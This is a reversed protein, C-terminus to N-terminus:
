RVMGRELLHTHIRNMISQGSAFDAMATLEIKTDGIGYHGVSRVDKVFRADEGLYEILVDPDCKLYLQIAEKQTTVLSGIQQKDWMINLVRKGAKILKLMLRNNWHSTNSRMLELANLTEGPVKTKAAERIMAIYSKWMEDLDELETCIMNAEAMMAPIPKFEELTVEGDEDLDVLAMLEDFYGTIHSKVEDPNHVRKFLADINARSELFDFDQLKSITDPAPYEALHAFVEPWALQLCALAYLIKADGLTWNKGSGSRKNVVVIKMLAAYNITRKLSRPNVGITLRTINVFFDVDAVDLSRNSVRLFCDDSGRKYGSGDNEWGLMAMIYSDLKYANVPMNFPVQIIKDFYSKGQLERTTRGLKEEMGRQVVSYDVAILFVCGPVDLFNKISELFELARVPKIRDLDDIMVILKDKPSDLLTKVLEGFEKKARALLDVIDETESESTAQVAAKQIDVGTQSKVIQNGLCGVFSGFKTVGSKLKEKRETSENASIRVIGDIIGRLISLSLMEEQNFQSYQWTNFYITHFRTGRRSALDLQEKLMNLFSTKGIGWDGQIGITLPTECSKIFSLMADVYFEVNLCDDAKKAVPSDIMYSSRVIVM